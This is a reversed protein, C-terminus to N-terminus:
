GCGCRSLRWCSRRRHVCRAMLETFAGPFQAPYDVKIILAYLQAFKNKVYAEALPQQMAPGSLWELIAGRLGARDGEVMTPYKQALVTLCWFKVEVLGSSHFRSIYFM